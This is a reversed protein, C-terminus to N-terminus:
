KDKDKDGKIGSFEGRDLNREIAKISRKIYTPPRIGFAPLKEFVSSIERLTFLACASSFMVSFSNNVWEYNPLILKLLTLSILVVAQSVLKPMFAGFRASSLKIRKRRAYAIGVLTDLIVSLFMVFYALIIEAGPNLKAVILALVSSLTTSLWTLWGAKVDFTGAAYMLACRAISSDGSILKTYPM